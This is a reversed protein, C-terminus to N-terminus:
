TSTPEVHQPKGASIGGGTHRTLPSQLPDLYPDSYCLFLSGSQCKPSNVQM